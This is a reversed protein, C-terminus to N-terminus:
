GVLEERLGELRGKISDDIQRDDITLVYGGIVEENVEATLKVENAKTAAKVADVVKQKAAETLEVATTITAEQIGKVVNYQRLFEESMAFLVEERNKRCILEFFASTLESVKGSFIKELIVGKEYHSIIPSKLLLELDRNNDVTQHFLVMDDKVQELIGKEQSLEILSKAYRNAVRYESM